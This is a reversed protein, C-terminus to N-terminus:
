DDPLADEFIPFIGWPPDCLFEDNSLPLDNPDLTFRRPPNIWQPTDRFAGAIKGRTDPDSCVIEGCPVREGSPLTIWVVLRNM